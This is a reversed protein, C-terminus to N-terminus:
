KLALYEQRAEILAPLADDAGRWMELFDKYSRRSQITDGSQALARALGLQSLPYLLWTTDQGRNALIHRFEAAAAPGRKLQLLAQGRVWHSWLPSSTSETMSSPLLALAQEAQNNQWALLARTLPLWLTNALVNDPQAKQLEAATSQAKDAAGALACVLPGFPFNTNLPYHAVSARAHSLAEELLKQAEETQGALGLRLAATLALKAAAEKQGRQRTLDLAQWWFGAATKLSGNAAAVQAQWDLAQEEYRHTQAWDLQQKLLNGNSQLHAVQFLAYRLDPGDLNQALAEELRQQAETLRNQRILTRARLLHASSERADNNLATEAEQLAQSLQGNQLALSALGTHALASDPFVRALRQYTESAKTLDGTVATHYYAEIILRERESVRNRLQYAKTAAGASQLTLGDNAYVRSLAYFSMAFNPDLESARQLYPLAERPNGQAALQEYGLSYAKLAELSSTTGERILTTFQPISGLRAGLEGRLKQAAQGFAKLVQDQNPAEAMVRAITEGSQSNLAEVTISYHQDLKDLQGTIAAKLSSRWAIERAIERTIPTDPPRNMYPLMARMKEEPLLSLASAQTLQAALATKLSRDFFEEGTTNLIDGLLLTDHNTLPARNDSWLYFLTLGVVLVVAALLALFKPNKFATAPAAEATLAPILGQAAANGGTSTNLPATNTNFSVFTASGQSLSSQSGANAPTTRHTFSGSTQKTFQAARQEGSTSAPSFAPSKLPATSAVAVPISIPTVPTQLGGNRDSTFTTHALIEGSPAHARLTQEFAEVAESATAPRYYPTKTLMRNILHELELPADPRLQRLPPPTELLHLRILEHVSNADFPLQGTLMRYMIVGFSYIDSRGDIEEGIRFQEPSAYHPTGLASSVQLDTSENSIKALGFDLVKVLDRDEDRDQRSARPVIMINAPKLDRHIVSQSHAADLAAAIQRSLHLIRRYSLAGKEYFEDELTKGELWEMVIFALEDPTRGADHVTAINEHTLRGATRAEREFLNLMNTDHLALNPLLIKFAVRREVGIQRARYVASMGGITVLAEIRYKDNIIRGALGYIDKLALLEGDNQCVSQTVAYNRHCKPCYKM